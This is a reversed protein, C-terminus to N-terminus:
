FGEDSIKLTSLCNVEEVIDKNRKYVFIGYAFSNNICCPGYRICIQRDSKKFNIIHTREEFLYEIIITLLDLNFPLFSLANEAIEKKHQIISVPIPISMKM